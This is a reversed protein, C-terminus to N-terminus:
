YWNPQPIKFITPGLFCSKLIGCGFMSSYIKISIMISLSLQTINEPIKHCEHDRSHYVLVIWVSMHHHIKQSYSFDIYSHFNDEQTNSYPMSHKCQLLVGHSPESHSRSHAFCGRSLCRIKTRGFLGFPHEGLWSYLNLNTRIQIHVIVYSLTFFLM